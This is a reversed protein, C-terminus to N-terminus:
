SPLSRKPPAGPADLEGTAMRADLAHRREDEHPDLALSDDQPDGEIEAHRDIEAGLSRLIELAMGVVVLYVGIDFFLATAVKVEGVAPLTLYFKATQLITGGFAIPALASGTAIALGAGMLHGPHLPVAAGLEYRGGALYRITLAIGALLGGAFGGGPQDHGSVLFYLSVILMSHYVVRTGLEFIVSRNQQSLTSSGALWLRNRMSPALRGGGTGARRTGPPVPLVAEPAPGSARGSSPSRWVARSSRPDLAINRLRDMRARRDRIFMFSAMGIATIVLVTIEGMTDWARIDVLTVNVINRGYGNVYAEDHLGTAIPEAVRSAAALAAVFAVAGGVTAALAMRLYRSAALPRNSFYAPLRRLVLIFIILSVTEALAQTLALDPAGYLEYVLAVGYGSVGVLLVAKMRHRARAGLIAATAAILVALAQGASDAPRIGAFGLPPGFALATGTVLLTFTFITSVYAPLSGRQTLSTARGSAAELGTITLRYFESGSLPFEHRRTFRLWPDRAAFIVAGLALVALTVLFPAGAGPWALLHGPGGAEVTAAYGSLLQELPGPVLGLLLGASALIIIPAMMLRSPAKVERPEAVTRTWFAGWWFRLAYGVTMASGLAITIWIAADAPATSGMLGHLATEKAVFGIFGPAGAMSLAALGSLIALLPMRRGLGTLERLDRTGTAWDIAGVTLFLAAKFLSHAVLMALGALMLEQTGYGVLVMLLGLQSVTGYALILKLDYQKLARYGGLLLTLLGLGIIVIRWSASGAFAPALRAVLYVGAKVMASSHLYASVPTPAAMAAPLWFHSPALASKTAAGALMLLLATAILAAPAGAGLTGARASAILESFLFSGGPLEGLIVIGGLMALGGSATVILAQQAARRSSALVHSHGILIFSFVTTLEWFMYMALTNDTTVLGLMAGAFSVFAGAFRGLGAASASFYRTTYVLVLAGVGSVILAMLWSLADIRFVLDLGLQPAWRWTEGPAAGALVEPALSAFYVFAGAPILALVLFGARGSRMIMPALLAGLAFAALIVLM